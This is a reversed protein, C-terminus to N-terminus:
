MRAKLQGHVFLLSTQALSFNNQPLEFFIYVSEIIFANLDNNMIIIM